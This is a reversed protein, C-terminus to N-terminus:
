KYSGQFNVCLKEFKHLLKRSLTIRCLYDTAARIKQLLNPSLLMVTMGDTVHIFKNCQQYILHSM